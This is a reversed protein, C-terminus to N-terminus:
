STVQAPAANVSPLTQIQRGEAKASADLAPNEVRSAPQFRAIEMRLRVIGETMRNAAETLNELPFSAPAPVLNLLGPSMTKIFDDPGPPTGVVPLVTLSGDLLPAGSPRAARSGVFLACHTLGARGLEELYPRIAGSQAANVETIVLLAEGTEKARALRAPWQSDARVEHWTVRLEGAVADVVRAVIEGDDRPSWRPGQPHLFVVGIGGSSEGPNHFTRPLDDFRVPGPLEPLEPMAKIANSIVDALAEIAQGYQGRTGKIRRLARLGGSCYDPPLDPNVRQFRKLVEPASGPEWIVPVVVRLPDIAAIANQLRLRFIEFEKACFESNFYTPSCFCVLVRAKRVADGLRREWDAGTKIDRTDWFGVQEVDTAGVKGRVITRLEDIVSNLKSHKNADLRAYSNFFLAM